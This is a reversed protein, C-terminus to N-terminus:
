SSAQIADAVSLYAHGEDRQGLELLHLGTSVREIFGWQWIAEAPVQTRSTLHRAYSRALDHARRGALGDHWARLLVGLDYAPEIAMGDPDIFKWQRGDTDRVVLINGPHPDGHAFVANEPRWAAARDRCYMLATDLTAQMCPRGLEQWKELMALGLSNAKDAGSVLHAGAPAPMWAELLTGCMIDIKNQYPLDHRELSPGLHELLMAHRAPDHRLLRVYGKGAARGLLEAEHRGIQSGPTPLKFVVTEGAATRAEAVFAASGGPLLAGITIGWDQQLSLLTEDLM